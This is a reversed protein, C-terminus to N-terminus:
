RRESLLLQRFAKLREPAIAERVACGPEDGHTCDRFRCGLSADAIDGFARRLSADMDIIQLTRLGPADIIIGKGPLAVMKRAVTTHRGKDDSSRVHGTQAMEKGILANVLSSKGVGSEGLLLATTYLSFEARLGDISAPDKISVVHLPVEPAVEEIRACTAEIIDPAVLDGKTLVFVPKAKCGAVAVMQRILLPEDIGDGTLSQCILVDDVNAALVQRRLQGERGVRKVRAIENRRPLVAEIVAKEHGHPRHLAVWDGVAVISDESKKISTALEARMDQERTCVLPFGRDLSVVCAPGCPKGQKALKENAAEFEHQVQETYALRDFSIM